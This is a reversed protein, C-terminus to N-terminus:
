SQRPGMGALQEGFALRDLDEGDALLAAILELAVKALIKDTM